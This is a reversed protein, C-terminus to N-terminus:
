TRHNGRFLRGLILRYRQKWAKSCCHYIVSCLWLSLLLASWSWKNLSPIFTDTQAPLDDVVPAVFILFLLPNTQLPLLCCFSLLCSSSLFCHYKFSGEHLRKLNCKWSSLRSKAAITLIVSLDSLKAKGWTAHGFDSHRLLEGSLRLVWFALRVVSQLAKCNFVVM